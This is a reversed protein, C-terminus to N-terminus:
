TSAGSHTPTRPPTVDGAAISFMLAYARLTERLGPLGITEAWDERESAPAGACLREAAEVIDTTMVLLQDLTPGLAELAVSANLVPFGFYAHEGDMSAPRTDPTMWRPVDPDDLMIM